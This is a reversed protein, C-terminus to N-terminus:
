LKKRARYEDSEKLYSYIKEPILRRSEEFNKRIESSSVKPIIDPMVTIKMGMESFREVSRDFEELSIDERRFVIFPILRMLERYNYWKDFSTLMDGGCVFALKKEPMARKFNLVTDYTYSKGEREFEDLCLEAKKFDEAAIRCMKIRVTDEAMFDCVKHPPIKDPMILIREVESRKELASLIAYHGIHLPNFTGGFIATIGM